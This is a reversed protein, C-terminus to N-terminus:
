CEMLVRDEGATYSQTQYRQHELMSNEQTREYDEMMEHNYRNEDHTVDDVRHQHVNGDALGGDIVNGDGIKNKMGNDLFTLDSHSIGFTVAEEELQISDYNIEQYQEQLYKLVDSVSLGRSQLENYLKANSNIKEELKEKVREETETSAGLSMLSMEIPKLSAYLAATFQDLIHLRREEESKMTGVHNESRIQIQEGARRNRTFLDQLVQIRGLGSSVESCASTLSREKAARTRAKDQLQEQKMNKEFKLQEINRRIQVKKRRLAEVQELLADVSGGQSNIDNNESFM